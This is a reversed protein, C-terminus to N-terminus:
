SATEIPYGPISVPAGPRGPNAGLLDQRVFVKGGPDPSLVDSENVDATVTVNEIRSALQSVTITIEPNGTTRVTVPRSVPRFGPANAKITFNRASNAKLHFQGAADSRAESLVQDAGVLQVAVSPLVNGQVDVVCGNLFMEQAFLSSPMLVLLLVAIRITRM